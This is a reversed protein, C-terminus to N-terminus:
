QGAIPFKYGFRKNIYELTVPEPNALDTDNAPRLALTLGSSNELSYKLVLADQEQMQFTVVTAGANGQDKSNPNPWPGVQLILVDQMLHHTTILPLGPAQNATAVPPATFTALIDVRDGAQIAGAVNTNITVPLAIAVTGKELLLSANSHTEKLESKDILMKDVLPQGPYIPVTALKGSADAPKEFAGVPTPISVPWDVQVIQEPAVESREIIPQVAMVLKTTKVPESEPTATALAVYVGAGAILALVMGLIILVRGGRRM